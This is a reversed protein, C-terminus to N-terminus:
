LQDMFLKGCVKECYEIFLKMNLDDDDHDKKLAADNTQITHTEKIAMARQMDALEKLLKSCHDM